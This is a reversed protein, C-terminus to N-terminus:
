FNVDQQQRTQQTLSIVDTVSQWLHKGHEEMKTKPKEWLAQGTVPAFQYFDGMLLVMSLEGFIATSESSLGKAQLLQQNITAFMKLDLMSIEDIVLASQQPWPEQIQCSEKGDKNIDLATHLTSRGINNVAAGTPAIIALEHSRQLLSYRQQLAQIVRSKGMGGEGRVYYLIIQNEWSTCFQSKTQIIHDLVQEVVLRQLDNLPLELHIKDAMTQADANVYNM